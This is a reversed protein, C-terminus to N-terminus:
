PKVLEIPVEPERAGTDDSHENAPTTGFEADVLGRVLDSVTTLRHRALGKLRNWSDDDIYIVRRVLKRETSKPM